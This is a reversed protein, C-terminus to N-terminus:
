LFMRKKNNNANMYSWLCAKFDIRDTNMGSVRTWQKVCPPKWEIDGNITGSPSYKGTSMYIKM